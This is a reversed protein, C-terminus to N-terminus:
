RQTGAAEGPVVAASPAHHPISAIIRTGRGPASDVELTGNVLAMRERMTFLGMGPRRREAEDPRFGVGDDRIELRTIGGRVSAHMLVSTANAHRLANKLAEQAVRYLVSSVSPGVGAASDEVVVEVRISGRSEAERSLHQLAAGLGLDDLVRPHVTQSLLRVEDLVDGAIRRIRELRELAGPDGTERTVVSLEMLLAALSQATSDHLERAIHSREEDGASILRATLDRLRARDATLGDLLANTAEGVRRLSGDALLSRPVRASLDGQWIRRATEELDSLPRLALAVLALNVVVSGVMGVGLIVLYRNDAAGGRHLVVAAVLAAVVIVANAGALKVALPVRLAAGVWAPLKRVEAGSAAPASPPAIGDTPSM